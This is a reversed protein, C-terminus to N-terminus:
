PIGIACNYEFTEQCRAVIGHVRPCGWAELAQAVACVPLGVVNAFCGEVRAVPRFTANQVAYAGAKDLPDRSAVYAQIEAESLRRMHVTTAVVDVHEQGRAPWLLAFGTLVQHSRGQLGRLMAAAHDPDRPKGLIRGDDVVATDAALIIEDSAAQSALAHAKARAVRTVYAAPAEGARPHEDVRPVQVRVPLGLWHVLARRRPSASALLLSCRAPSSVTSTM